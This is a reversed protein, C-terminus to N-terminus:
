REIEFEAECGKDVWIGHRDEGWSSDYVCGSKSLKRVLRVSRTGSPVRCRTYGYGVSACRIIRTGGYPHDGRRGWGRDEQRVAFVARCGNRVWVGSGDRNAGWTDHEKCRTKSLQRELEVTGTTNTRCYTYKNGESECRITRTKGRGWQAFSFTSTLVVLALAIRCAFRRM